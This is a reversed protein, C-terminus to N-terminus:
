EDRLAVMPDVKAARRAPIWCALFASLLLSVACAVYTRPDTSSIGSLQNQLYHGLLWAGTMGGAVGPIVRAFGRFFVNRVVVNPSAGLAIRIGIERTRSGVNFSLVGYLGVSALLLALAAFLSILKSQFSKGAISDAVRASLPLVDYVAETATMQQLQKRAAEILAAPDGHTRLLLSHEGSFPFQRLSLYFEEHDTQGLDDQTSDGVVGVVTCHSIETEPSGIVVGKGIPNQGPWWHQAFSRTVIMDVPLKRMAELLENMTPTDSSFAPVPEENIFVHGQQLPIGLARFYDRTVVRYSAAPYDGSTPAPRDTLRFQNHSDNFGFPMNSVAAAAEVGPLGALHETADMYFAAIRLPAGGVRAGPSALRLSLVNEPEYGLSRSSLSWLSRLVLGATILLLTAVGVQVVVMLDPSGLRGRFSSAVVSRDKLADNASMRSARWAPVLGFGLGTLLTVGLAFACVSVNLVPISNGNVQLLQVPVLSGLATSLGGALLLGLGGGLAALLFSEVMLQRVLRLRGAGLAVRIAMERERACARALSLTAINVCVLLLVLGVAGMLLFQRPRADGILYEHLGMLKVGVGINSKPYQAALQAAVADMDSAASAPSVGDRLRGLVRANSHSSRHQMYFQEVFPALPLVLDGNSFFQFEPPLVGVITASKGNMGVSRGVVEPDAHFRRVWAAHTLLLVPAAHALDDEATLDRGLMPQFGLVKLFDHDVMVTSVRDTATGITLSVPNATRYITLASFATQQRKWDEFDLYSVPMDGDPKHESIQIIRDAQPYPLSRFLTANLVGFFATNAGIGLALISVSIATFGPRNRLQRLAFRLDQLLRQM